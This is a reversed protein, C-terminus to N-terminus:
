ELLYSVITTMVGDRVHGHLNEDFYGDIIIYTEQHSCGMLRMNNEGTDLIEVLMLKQEEALGDIINLLQSKKM